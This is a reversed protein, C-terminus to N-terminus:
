SSGRNDRRRSLEALALALADKPSIASQVIVVDDVSVSWGTRVDEDHRREHTLQFRQVDGNAVITNLLYLAIDGESM